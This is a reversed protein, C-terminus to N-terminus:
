QSKQQYQEKSEKGPCINTIVPLRYLIDTLLINMRCLQPFICYSCTEIHQVLM